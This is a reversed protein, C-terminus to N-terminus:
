PKPSPASESTSTAAALPATSARNKAPRTIPRKPARLAAASHASTMANEKAHSQLPRTKASKNSDMTTNPDESLTYSTAMLVSPEASSVAPALGDHAAQVAHETHPMAPAASAAPKSRAATGAGQCSVATPTPM